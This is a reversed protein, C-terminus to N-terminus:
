RKVDRLAEVQARYLAFSQADLPAHGYWVQDFTEVVPRLRERLAANDHLHDLYERNTLARDYRLLDREDLWLLASLYLYRMATRYDGSRAIESAQDLASRATLGAEPDDAAARAEAAMNRHLGLLLYGIVGALLLGGIALIAWGLAQSAPRMASGVPRLLAELVRGVWDWFDRWWSGANPDAAPQKFPPNDLIQKLRERADPPASSNPQALADLIAGLRAAIAQLDPDDGTLAERLWGNDVGISQGGPLRVSRTAVLQSAVQELGLRDSRQAAAFAQRVLAVYAPLDPSQDQASAPPLVLFWSGLVMLLSLVGRNWSSLFRWDKTSPQTGEPHNETRANV